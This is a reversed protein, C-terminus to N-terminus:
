DWLGSEYLEIAEGCTSCKINENFLNDEEIPVLEYWRCDHCKYISKFEEGNNKILKFVFKKSVKDCKPCRCLKYGYGDELICEKNKLLSILEEKRKKEKYITTLNEQCEIDLLNRPSYFFGIGLNYNYLKGCKKCIGSYITGM